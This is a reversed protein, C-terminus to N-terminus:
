RRPGRETRSQDELCFRAAPKVELRGESIEAGCVECRGYTGADLRQLAAEIEALENEVRQLVGQDLVREFTETAGEASHQDATTGVLTESPGTSLRGAAERVELLRARERQLQDRAQAMDM